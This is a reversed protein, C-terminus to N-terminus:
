RCTQLVQYTDVAMAAPTVAARCRRGTGTGTWAFYHAEIAESPAGACPPQEEGKWLWPDWWFCECDLVELDKDFRCFPADDRPRREVVAPAAVVRGTREVVGDCNLDGNGFGNFGFGAGPTYATSDDDCDLQGSVPERDTWGRCQTPPSPQDCSAASGARSAAYGDGDCDRYWIRTTCRTPSITPACSIREDIAGDCDDDVQDCREDVPVCPPAPISPPGPSASPAHSGTGADKDNVTPPQTAPDSPTSGDPGSGTPGLRGDSPIVGNGIPTGDQVGGDSSPDREICYDPAGTPLVVATPRKDTWSPCTCTEGVATLDAPCAIENTCAGVAAVFLFRWLRASSM